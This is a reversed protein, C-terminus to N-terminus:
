NPHIDYSTHVGTSESYTPPPEFGRRQIAIPQAYTGSTPPSPPATGQPHKPQFVGQMAQPTGVNPQQPYYCNLAVTGTKTATQNAANPHTRPTIATQRQASPHPKTCCVTYCALCMMALFVLFGLIMFATGLYYGYKQTGHQCGSCPTSLPMTGSKTVTYCPTEFSNPTRNEKNCHTRLARVYHFQKRHQTKRRMKRCLQTSFHFCLFNGTRSTTQLYVYM